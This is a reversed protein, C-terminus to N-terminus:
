ELEDGARARAGDTMVARRAHEAITHQRREEDTM